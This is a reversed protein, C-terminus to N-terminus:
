TSEGESKAKGAGAKGADADGEDAFPLEAAEDFSKKRKGSYAWVCLAIFAAMVLATSIGRLDNIDMRSVLGRFM